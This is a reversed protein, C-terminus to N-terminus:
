EESIVVLLPLHDSICKNPKVNAMLSTNSIMRLYSVNQICDVLEKTVLVQDFCHWIPSDSKNTNYISGYMHSDESIYDLIPNYLRRFREKNVVTFEKQKILAKFLVSNFANTALMETDYPNANFDGLIISKKTKCCEELNQIDNVLRGITMVRRISDTTFRDELHAACLVYKKQSFPSSVNYIAYRNQEQAISINWSVKSLLLLKKCGGLGSEVHYPSTSKFSPWDVGDHEAFVAIDVDFEELADLILRSNDHGM